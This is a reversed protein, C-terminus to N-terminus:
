KHKRKNILSCFVVVRSDTMDDLCTSLALVHSQDDPKRMNIANESVYGLMLDAGAKYVKEDYADFIGSAFVRIDYDYEPTLLTGTRHEDFFGADLYKDLDGFM